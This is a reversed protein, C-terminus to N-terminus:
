MKHKKHQILNYEPLITLDQTKKNYTFMNNRISFQVENNQQSNMVKVLEKYQNEQYSQNTLHCYNQMLNLFRDDFNDKPLHSLNLQNNLALEEVRDVKALDKLLSRNKQNKEGIQVLRKILSEGYHEKLLPLVKFRWFNRTYSLDHNIPDEIWELNQKKAYELVEKKSANLLPRILQEDIMKMGSSGSGAGRLLQIMITEAQDNQHHGLYVYDYHNQQYYEIRDLHAISEWSQKGKDEVNLDLDVITHKIDLHKCTEITHDKIEDDSVVLPTNGHLFTLAEIQINNKKSLFKHMLFLVVTSDVGGSYGIAIKYQKNSDFIKQAVQQFEFEINM